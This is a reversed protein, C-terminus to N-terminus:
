PRLLIYGQEVLDIIRGAGSDVSTSVPSLSPEVGSLKALRRQTNGCASFRVGQNALKRIREDQPSNALLLELGPGFAVVELQLKDGYRAVLNDAVNLVLVQKELTNDTLQLVVKKSAAEHALVPVSLLAAVLGFLNASRRLSALLSLHM